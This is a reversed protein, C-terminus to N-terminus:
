KAHTKIHVNALCHCQPLAATTSLSPVARPNNPHSSVHREPSDFIIGRRTLAFHHSSRHLDRLTRLAPIPAFHHSLLRRHSNRPARQDGAPAARRRWVARRQRRAPRRPRGPRDSAAERSRAGRGRGNETGREDGGARGREPRRACAAAAAAIAARSPVIGDEPRSPAPPAAPVRVRIPPPARRHHTSSSPSASTAPAPPRMAPAAACAGPGGTIVHPAHLKVTAASSGLPVPTSDSLPCAPTSGREREREMGATAGHQQQATAGPSRPTENILRREHLTVGAGEERAVRVRENDIPEKGAHAASQRASRSKAM